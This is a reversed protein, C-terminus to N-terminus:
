PLEQWSTSEEFRRPDMDIPLAVEAVKLQRMKRELMAQFSAAQGPSASDGEAYMWAAYARLAYEDFNLTTSAGISSRPTLVRARVRVDGDATLPWIRFHRANGVTSEYWEVYRARTGSIAYPNWEDPLFPLPKPDDEWLIMRIDQSSLIDSLASTVVGTSADLTRTYWRLQRKWWVERSLLYYADTILQAIRDEAYRQTGTGSAMSLDVITRETIEGLTSFDM